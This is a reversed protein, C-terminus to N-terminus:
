VTELVRNDEPTNLDDDLGGDTVTVTITSVGHENEAPQLLIKGNEDPSSYEVIPQPILAPNSSVGVMLPQTEDEPFTGATIGSLHVTQQLSNTSIYPPDQIEDLTPLGGMVFGEFASISLLLVM